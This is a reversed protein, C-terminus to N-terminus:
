SFQRHGNQTVASKRDPKPSLPVYATSSRRALRARFDRLTCGFAIDTTVVVLIEGDHLLRRGTAHMHDRRQVLDGVHRRSIISYLGSALSRAALSKAALFKATLSKATAVGARMTAGSRARVNM